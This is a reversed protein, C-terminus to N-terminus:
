LAPGVIRLDFTYNIMLFNFWLGILLWFYKAKGDVLNFLAYFKINGGVWMCAFFIMILQFDFLFLSSFGAVLIATGLWNANEIIYGKM